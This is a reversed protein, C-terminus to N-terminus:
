KKRFAKLKNVETSTAKKEMSRRYLSYTMLPHPLPLGAKIIKKDYGDLVYNVEINMARHWNPRYEIIMSGLALAEVALLEHANSAGYLNIQAALNDLGRMVSDEIELARPIKAQRLALSYEALAILMVSHYQIRSNHPDVWRGSARQGPLVGLEAFERAGHLFRVEGTARYLRSLLMVAFGNYNWNTSLPQTLVWDGARIAADLYKQEGGLWYLYILDSGIVGNDFQLAGDNTPDIIIYGKEVIDYGRAHAQDALKAATRSLRNKSNPAYPFGFVGNSAQQSVLFNFGDRADDLIKSRGWDNNLGSEHLLLFSRVLRHSVRLRQVTKGTVATKHNELIWPWEHRSGNVYRMWVSHILALDPESINMTTGYVPRVEPRESWDGLAIELKDVTKYIVKVDRTQFAKRMEIRSKQLAVKVSKPVPGQWKVGDLQELSRSVTSKPSESAHSVEGLGYFVALTVITINLSKYIVDFVTKEGM